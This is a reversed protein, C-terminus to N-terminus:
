PQATAAALAVREDDGHGAGFSPSPPPSPRPQRSPAAGSRTSRPCIHTYHDEIVGMQGLDVPHTAAVKAATTVAIRSRSENTDAARSPSGRATARSRLRTSSPSSRSGATAAAKAGYVPRAWTTPRVPAGPTPFDVSVFASM